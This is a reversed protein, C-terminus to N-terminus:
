PRPPDLGREALLRRYLADVDGVLRSVAYRPVVRARGAAGMAVRRDPQTALLELRDAAAATDGPGVLFGDEGDAIVDRVGGVDTSVVPRGAALSEIAVVPTGENHSTLLLADFLKYFPAIDAQYGLFVTERMVGLERALQEAEARTPGDGVLCLRADVGGKRLTAFTRLVDPVSKIATMRGIWGVVFADAPMGLLRRYEAGEGAGGGLREDLDIGLRIVDFKEAPAVGLEVLDDRVEPSVAILRDTHAALSSEIRRYAETAAPGFYGRLVHGHYTHVVIPPKAIGALRAAARGIAGAKATHTHLITPRERRIIEVLSRVAKVDNLPSVDRGLHLAETVAVGLRDAVYSMSGEGRAIQGAVLTTRYGREELGRTLYSVHLAPGGM